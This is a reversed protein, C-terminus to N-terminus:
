GTVPIQTHEMELKIPVGPTPSYYDQWIKQYRAVEWEWRTDDWELEPQVIARIRPLLAQGGQPLQLGLRVRRLLLDDLHIVGESRAALRLEAWLNPMTEIPTLEEVPSQILDVVANGYRGALYLAQEQKLRTESSYQPLSNFIPKRIGTISRGAFRYRAAQLVSKAMVRFTTLKGGTITFLGEEEWVAHARSEASPNATGSSIIPRVGAYTALIDGATIHCAPLISEIAELIYDIETQTTYPEDGAQSHDLDTTGVLYVSEWPVAIMGRQDNPHMLIFAQRFPMKSRPFILHSGRTQRIRAPVGLPKRIEDTWPGTANIVVRAEIEATIGNPSSEDKVFVGCVKGHQDRLLTEVRAYNIAHAGELMAEQLLRLVMRSDDAAADDYRFVALLGEPNLQPVLNSAQSPTLIQHKWKKGFLDYLIVGLMFLRNSTHYASYNPMIFPLPTVLGPAAQLLWERERVSERTVDFQGSRMYRFGGHVMKSSRSSTGSSFDGAELLLCNLGANRAQRLVGAGTIGGGIIIVDWPQGIESWLKERYGKEWM